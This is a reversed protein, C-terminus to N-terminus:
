PLPALAAEAIWGTTTVGADNTYEALVWGPRVERVGIADGEVVYATGASADPQPHFPAWDAGPSSAARATRSSSAASVTTTRTPPTGRIVAVRRCGFTVGVEGCDDVFAQVEEHTLLEADFDLVVQPDCGVRSLIFM